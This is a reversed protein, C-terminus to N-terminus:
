SVAYKLKKNNSDDESMCLCWGLGYYIKEKKELSKFLLNNQQTKKEDFAQPSWLLHKVTTSKLFKNPSNDDTQYWELMLNGFRILDNVNSMVGGGAWKYSLDVFPVNVLRKNKNRM